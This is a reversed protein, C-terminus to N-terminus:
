RDAYAVGVGSTVQDCTGRWTFIPSNGADDMMHRYCTMAGADWNPIIQHIAAVWSTIQNLAVDSTYAPLGSM